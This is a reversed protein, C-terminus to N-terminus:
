KKGLLMFVRRLQRKAPERRRQYDGRALAGKEHEEDLRAILEVLADRRAKLARTRSDQGKPAGAMVTNHAYWLVVVLAMLVLPGILLLNQGV